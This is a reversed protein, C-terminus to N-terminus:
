VQRKYVDERDNVYRSGERVAYSSIGLGAFLLFDRLRFAAILANLVSIFIIKGSM